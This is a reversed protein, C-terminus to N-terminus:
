KIVIFLAGNGRRINLLISDKKKAQKILDDVKKVPKQNVSVVIDGERLGSRWAATGYEVASVHVGEIEGHLQHDSPISSFKAGKFLDVSTVEREEDNNQPEDIKVKASMTKGDRMFEIEAKDGLRMLGVLNKLHSSGKIVTGNFHTIIDGSELGAKEAPSEENVNSVLAGNMNDLDLADAIDPSIDQIYVGIRGRKVEGHEIIQNMVSKAMNVPIAFGIGLSGGSRSYIATNIGILKGDLTMLAGGSNGPNIPADTQIFDEYGEIGLGSRGLASVIGSTVTHSLGFPNGIAVVYDGVRMKDSDGLPLATLNKAKVKLVAVDTEPDSGVVEADLKRKDKLIVFIEDANRIVHHNTLIYGKKADVIVGSGISQAEQQRPKKKPSRFERREMPFDKFFHRFLPDDFFPDNFPDRFDGYEEVESKARAAINVIAPSTEELVNALSPIQGQLHHLPVEALVPKILFGSFGVFVLFLFLINRHM